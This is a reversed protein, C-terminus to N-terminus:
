YHKLAKMELNGMRSWPTYIELAEIQDSGLGPVPQLSGLQSLPSTLLRVM